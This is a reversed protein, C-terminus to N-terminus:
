RIMNGECLLTMCPYSGRSTASKDLQMCRKGILAFCIMDREHSVKQLTYYSSLLGAGVRYTGAGLGADIERRHPQLLSLARRLSAANDPSGLFLKAALGSTLLRHAEM